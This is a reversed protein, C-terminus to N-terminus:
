MVSMVSNLVIVGPYGFSDCDFRGEKASIEDENTDYKTMTECLLHSARGTPTVPDILVLTGTEEVNRSNM